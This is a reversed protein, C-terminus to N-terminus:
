AAQRVQGLVWGARHLDKPRLLGQESRQLGLRGVPPATGARAWPVRGM